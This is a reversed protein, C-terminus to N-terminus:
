QLSSGAATHSRELAELEKQLLLANETAAGEATNDFICWTNRGTRTAETLQAACQSIFEPSYSSYYMRPSGHLRFYATSWYSRPVAAEPVPLPDAVVRSVNWLSLLRESQSTFWSAHRPECVVAVHTGPKEKELAQFFADAVTEQFALSPPLQVLLCGLRTGLGSGEAAFQAILGPEPKLRATHTIAKPVKVSFRFSEPVSAAWRAYTSTRHPRYFSSNIEVGSFRTAYRELHTGAGSFQDASAKPLNWGACGVYIPVQVSTSM